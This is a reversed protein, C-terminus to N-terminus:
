RRVMFWQPNIEDHFLVTERWIVIECCLWRMSRSILLRWLVRRVLSNVEKPISSKQCVLNFAFINKRFFFVCSSSYFSTFYIENETGLVQLICKRYMCAGIWVVCFWSLNKMWSNKGKREKNAKWSGCLPSARNTNAPTSEVLAM